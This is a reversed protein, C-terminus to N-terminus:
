PDLERREFLDGSKFIEETIADKIQVKFNICFLNNFKVVINKM